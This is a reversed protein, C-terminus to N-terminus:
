KLKQFNKFGAGVYKIHTFYTDAIAYGGPKVPIISGSSEKLHVVYPTKNTYEIFKM